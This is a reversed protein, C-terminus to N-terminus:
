RALKELPARSHMFQRATVAERAVQNPKPDALLFGALEGVLQGLRHPDGLVLVLDGFQLALHTLEISTSRSL